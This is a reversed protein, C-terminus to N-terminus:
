AEREELDVTIKKPWGNVSLQEGRGDMMKMAINTRREGPEPPEPPPEPDGNGFQRLFASLDGNYVNHDLGKSTTGHDRGDSGVHTQWFTWSTWDQPLMPESVNWHAIWLPIEAFKPSHQVRSNWWAPATYIGCMGVNDAMRNAAEIVRGALNAKNLRGTDEIDLHPYIQYPYEEILETFMRTQGYVDLGPKFYWYTGVFLGADLAGRMNEHFRDDVYGSPSMNSASGARIIVFTLKEAMLEFNIVDQWHSVDCGRPRKLQAAALFARDHDSRWLERWRDRLTPRAFGSYAATNPDNRPQPPHPNM